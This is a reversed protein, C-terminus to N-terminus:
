KVLQMQKTQIERGFQLRYMYHGSPLQYNRNDFVYFHPGSNMQQNLLTQIRQGKVNFLDLRVNSKSSSEPIYFSIMTTPNFPNPYNQALEMGNHTKSFIPLDGLETEDVVQDFRDILINRENFAEVVRVGPMLTINWYHHDDTVKEIYWRNHADDARRTGVGWSGDGIYIIGDENVENNRIPKTRKFTHDHNEFALTIGYREFLPVWETRVRTSHYSEAPRFSPWAPVHYAPFVHPIDQRSALQEELWQAQAGEVRNTHNSDLLIFSLYNGIDLTFYARREPKDFIPLICHHKIRLKIIIGWM